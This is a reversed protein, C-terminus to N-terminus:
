PLICHNICIRNQCRFIIKLIPKPIPTFLDHMAGLINYCELVSDVIVRIAYIDYLKM